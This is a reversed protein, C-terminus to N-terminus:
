CYDETHEELTKSTEADITMLLQVSPKETFCDMVYTSFGLDRCWQAAHARAQAEQHKAYEERVSAGGREGRV